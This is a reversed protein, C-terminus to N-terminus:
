NEGDGQGTGGPGTGGPADVSEARRKLDGFYHQLADRYRVPVQQEHTGESYSEAARLAVDRFTAASEGRIQEGNFLMTAIVDANTQQSDAKETQFATPTRSREAEGGEGIGADGMAGGQSMMAALAQNMGLGEGLGDCLGECMGQLENATAQARRLMQQMSEMDRLMDSMSQAGEGMEGGAGQQLGQAMQQMASGMNGLAQCAQSQSQAMQQMQQRQQESLGQNQEIAQQLQQPDNALNPDMGADELAQRLENQQEALKELQAALDELQKQLEAKEAESLDNQALSEQLAELAEAAAAFDGKQMAEALKRAPGDAPSQLQNMAKSVLEQTKAQEGGILSELERSLDTLRKIAERRANEPTRAAQEGFLAPDLEALAARIADDDLQSERIRESVQSLINTVEDPVQASQDNASSQGSFVDWQPLVVSLMVALLVVGPTLYWGRPWEVRFARGLQERVRGDRARVVADEVAVRAFPDERHQLHIATSLLEKLKLRSDVLVAVRMQELRGRMYLWVTAALALGGTVGGALWWNVSWRADLKDIVVLLLIAVAAFMMTRSLCVLFHSIHLRRSARHILAFVDNM